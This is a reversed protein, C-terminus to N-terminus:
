RSVGPPDASSGPVANGATLRAGYRRIRPTDLMAPHGNIPADGSDIVEYYLSGGCQHGCCSPLMEEANHRQQTKSM